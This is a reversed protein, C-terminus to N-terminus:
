QSSLLAITLFSLLFILYLNTPLVIYLLVFLNGKQCILLLKLINSLVISCVYSSGVITPEIRLSPFPLVDYNNRIYFCVGGGNGVPRQCTLLKFGDIAFLEADADLLWTETLAVCDFPYNLENFLVNINDYAKVLRRCNLHLVRFGSYINFLQKCENVDYYRSDLDCNEALKNLYKCRTTLCNTSYEVTYKVSSDFFLDRLESDSVAQFPLVSALCSSCFWQESSAGLRVYDESTLGTCVKHCWNDCIDCQIAQQNSRVTKGCIRCHPAIRRPM